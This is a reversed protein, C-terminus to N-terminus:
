AAVPLEVQRGVKCPSVSVMKRPSRVQHPGWPASSSFSSGPRGLPIGGGQQSFPTTPVVNEMEAVPSSVLRCSPQGLIRDQLPGRTTVEAM